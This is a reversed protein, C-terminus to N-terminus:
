REDWNLRYVDVQEYYGGDFSTLLTGYRELFAEVEPRRLGMTEQYTDRKQDPDVIFRRLFRDVILIDPNLERFAEELTAGPKYRQYLSLKEWSYYTHDYLGFWYTQPGLISDEPQVVQNIRGQNLRYVERFNIKFVSLNLVVSGVVLGWIFGRYVCDRLRGRWRYRIFQLLSSAVVLDLAPTFLIAYYLYKSRILSTHGVILSAALVLLVNVSRSRRRVSLVIAWIIVPILPQYVALLMMGTDRVAQMIVQPDMTLLPPVHHVLFTLRNLAYYTKPYPLIHIMAYGTLGIVVGVVFGWFRRDRFVAWQRNLLGIAVIAPGFIASYAHMEYAAGVCLGSILGIWFRSPRDSLYLAVAVFGLAAAMVDTRALHGSYLFPWSMAVLFVSLLGLQRGELNAAISYVAALLLIGFALSVLRLSWLHPVACPRLALSHIWVPLWPFLTWYGEYNEIVGLDLTGVPKGTQIYGWARSANWAEDVFPAPFRMLTSLHFVAVGLFLTALILRERNQM